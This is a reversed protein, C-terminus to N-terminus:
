VKHGDEKEVVKEKVFLKDETNYPLEIEKEKGKKSNIYNQRAEFEKHM